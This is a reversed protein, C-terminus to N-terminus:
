AFRNLMLITWYTYAISFVAGATGWILVDRRWNVLPPHDAPLYRQAIEPVAGLLAMLFMFPFVLTRSLFYASAAFGATAAMATYSFRRLYRAGPDAIGKLAHFARWTGVMGVQLLAFWPVYGLLGMETYCTVFANHAPRGAGVQWFMGYGIGFVPHAKFAWNGYGWFVVRERSSMDLLAGGKTACLVLALAAGAAALWPQWRKPLLLLLGLVAMASLAIMGGRSHTTEFGRWLFYVVGSALAFSLIGLRQTLAFAFPMACALIQALDNPDSFIGFFISRWCAPRVPTAPQWIPGQGAFGFGRSMQLLAHIAMVCAMVVFLASTAQLRGNSTLVIVLLATFFCIKFVEPITYMVGGFYTNAVHSMVAAAWLAGLLVLGHKSSPLAIRNTQTELM